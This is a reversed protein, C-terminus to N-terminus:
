QKIYMENCTTNRNNILYTITTSLTDNPKGSITFPQNIAYIMNNVTDEFIPQETLSKISSDNLVNAQIKWLRNANFLNEILITDLTGLYVSFITEYVSDVCSSHVEYNGSFFQALSVCNEGTYNELCFCTGNICEGQASCFVSACPDKICATLM